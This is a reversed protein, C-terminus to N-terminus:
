LRGPPRLVPKDDVQVRFNINLVYYVKVPKGGLTAPFFVWQRIAEMAAETMGNPLEQLARVNRVCGEEDIIAEVIVTGNTRAKRAEETYVPKVSSVIEPRTVEGGVRKPELDERPEPPPEAPLYTRARCLLVRAEKLSTGEPGADKLYRRATEVTEAWKQERALVEALNYRAMTGWPGGFDAGQRLAEEAKSLAGPDRRAVFALGLQNYARALAAPSSLLPIAQQVTAVVQDWKGGESAYVHSLGLLCEGCPGGALATARELEAKAMQFQGEAILGFARGLSETLAQRPAPPSATKGQQSFDPGTGCVALISIAAVLAGLSRM